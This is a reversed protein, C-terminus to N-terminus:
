SDVLYVTPFLCTSIDRLVQAQPIFILDIRLTSLPELAYFTLRFLSQTISLKVILHIQYTVLCLILTDPPSSYEGMDRNVCDEFSRHIIQLM